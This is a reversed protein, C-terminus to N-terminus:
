CDPTVVFMSRRHLGGDVAQLKRRAYRLREQLGEVGFVETLQASMKEEEALFAARTDRYGATVDRTEVIEFGATELLDRHTRRRLGVAPPGSSLCHHYDRETLGPAPHINYFAMRGTPKLQKRLARLM